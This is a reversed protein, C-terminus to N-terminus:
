PKRRVPPTDIADKVEVQVHIGGNGNIAALNNDKPEVNDLV